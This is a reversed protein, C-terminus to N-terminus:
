GAGAVTRLFKRLRHEGSTVPAYKPPRGPSCCGPLCEILADYNPQYFFVISQRRSGSAADRPPNVVRHLTSVWRDNTWHMMLDGLNVVFADPPSVVDVWEGRRNLV